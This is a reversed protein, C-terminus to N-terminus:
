KCFFANKKLACKEVEVEGRIGDFNFSPIHMKTKLPSKLKRNKINEIKEKKQNKTFSSPVSSRRGTEKKNKLLDIPTYINQNNCVILKELQFLVFTKFAM